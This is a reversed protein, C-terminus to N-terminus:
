LNVRNICFTKIENCIDPPFLQYFEKVDEKESVNFMEMLLLTREFPNLNPHMKELKRYVKKMARKLISSIYQRSCGYIKSIETASMARTFIM